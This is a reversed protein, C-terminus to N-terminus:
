VPAPETRYKKFPLDKIHKGFFTGASEAEKFADFTAQEVDPYQYLANGYNFTVALTKTEPDYGIAKVQNSQVAQMNIQLPQGEDFAQPAKSTRTM